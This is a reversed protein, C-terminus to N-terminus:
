AQRAMARELVERLSPNVLESLVEVVSALTVEINAGEVQYEFGADALTGKLDISIGELDPKERLHQLAWEALKERVEPSVNIKITAQQQRDAQVYQLVIDHLLTGLFDADSLPRRAGRSLVERVARSLAERLRMAIDRAALDLDIRAKAVLSDAQAQAEDLIRRAKAEAQALTEDAKKRADAKIQAAAQEGAQIGEQHLKAVFAELTEAM